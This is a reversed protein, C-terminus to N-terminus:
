PRSETPIGLVKLLDRVAGRTPDDTVPADNLWLVTGGTGGNVEIRFGSRKLIVGDGNEHFGVEGLWPWTAPEGDDAADAGRGALYARGVAKADAILERLVSMPATQARAWGWGDACREAAGRLEEDTMIAGRRKAAKKV